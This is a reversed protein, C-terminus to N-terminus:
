RTCMFRKDFPALQDIVDERGSMIVPPMLCPNEAGHQSDLLLMPGIQAFLEEITEEFRILGIEPGAM